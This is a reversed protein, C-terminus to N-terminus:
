NLPKFKVLGDSGNTSKVPVVTVLEVIAERDGSPLFSVSSTAGTTAFGPTALAQQISRRSANSNLSAILTQTADYSLATRWGVEVGWLQKAQRQFPLQANGLINSPVALVMGAAAEGGIQLTKRTYLSDGALIPLRRRNMQVVQLARDAVASQSALMIVNAGSKIAQEVSEYANFSPGALDVEHIVQGEKSYFLANKFENRLSLSYSSNPDYFIVVKQKKLQTLMYNSLVRATFRDSPMTRFIYRGFESLQVASSTPSIMVLEGEQYVPAAAITTESTGHGVVGLVDLNSVLAQAIAAAIAPQNSDNAIAVKLPTGNIGGAQNIQTQGHAVGRLIEQASELTSDLPVVVAIAYAKTAGIRANNLYILTEPDELDSQRAADLVAVAEPYAEMALLEAGKQKLPAPVGPTLFKEGWSIRNAIAPDVVVPSPETPAAVFPFWGEYRAAAIAGIVVTSALGIGLLATWPRSSRSPQLQTIPSIKTQASSKPSRSSAASRFSRASSSSTPSATDTIEALAQLVETASQYRDRFHYRVMRDIIAGLQQSVRVQDRWIIESTNPDLPLQAPRLGTLAQIAIVGLAYIDSNFKPQGLCQESAGYGSTYIPVSLSTQGTAEAIQSSITKVAGFDILVLRSDQQRRILNDPKIDRHIVGQAHVFALIVLVDELLAIVQAESLKQGWPLEESLSHGEIFEQVLYFEQDEEFYALLHPIQDHHKGLRELTEAEAYFLRKAQQLVEENSSKFSLHKLVCLPNGPRQTDEAVYTHGFGGSGLTKTVRYRGGLLRGLM